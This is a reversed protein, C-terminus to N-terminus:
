SLRALLERERRPSLGARRERDLGLEREWRLADRVTEEIPRTTLGAAEARRRDRTPHGAYEPLPLWLPLSEPGMWPEVGQEVLWTGDAAVTRAGTGSVRRCAEIVDGLTRVPGTANVVGGTGAMGCRLLWGALDEVDVVQCPDAPPPVLVPEDDAARALRAPWYGFRDSPDAYGVILGARAVLAGPVADLLVRECAVKAPGYEEVPALGVGSWPEHVTGSEDQGPTADDAYVSVTSVFVWHRAGEALAQVATRVHLPQRGVDVVVDWARDAVQDYAARDARDGRVLEAGRPVEGSAGRALCTVAHGQELAM